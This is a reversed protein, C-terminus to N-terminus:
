EIYVKAKFPITTVVVLVLLIIQLGMTVMADKVVGNQGKRGGPKLDSPNNASVAGDAGVGSTCSCRTVWYLHSLM